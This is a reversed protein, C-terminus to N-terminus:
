RMKERDRMMTIFGTNFSRTCAILEYLDLFLYRFTQQMGDENQESSSSSGSAAAAAQQQHTCIYKM